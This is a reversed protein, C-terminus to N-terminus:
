PGEIEERLIELELWRNELGELENQAKALLASADGFAKPDRAYLGPDALKIELKGIVSRLKEM